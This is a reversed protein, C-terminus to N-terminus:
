TIFRSGYLYANAGVQFDITTGETELGVVSYIKQDENVISRFYMEDYPGLARGLGGSMWTELYCAIGEHYWRPAYWRPTTLYSWFASLPHREERRVKGLMAKRWFLDSKNPKDAMAIHTLEHNSLWQFRENTPVINFAHNFPSIGLIVMNVPMVMAGGYGDDEFDTLLVYTMNHDYDWLHKHFDMANHFTSAVHPMLYSYRKGFYILEMEGTTYRFIKHRSERMEKKADNLPAPSLTDASNNQGLITTSAGSVLFMLLVVGMLTRKMHQFIKLFSIAESRQM